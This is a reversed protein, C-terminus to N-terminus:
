SELFNCIFREVDEPLRDKELIANKLRYLEPSDHLLLTIKSELNPQVYLNYGDFITGDRGSETWEHVFYFFGEQFPLSYSDEYFVKHYENEFLLFYLSENKEALGDPQPSIPNWARHGSLTESILANAFDNILKQKM